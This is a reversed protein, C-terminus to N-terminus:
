MYICICLYMCVYMCAYMFVYMCVYMCKEFMQMTQAISSVGFIAGNSNHRIRPRIDNHWTANMLLYILILNKTIAKSIDNEDYFSYM